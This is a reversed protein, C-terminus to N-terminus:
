RSSPPPLIGGGDDAVVVLQSQNSLAAHTTPQTGTGELLLMLALALSFVMAKLKKSNKFRNIVM